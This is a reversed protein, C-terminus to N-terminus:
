FPVSFAYLKGESTTAYVSAALYDYAPDGVAISAGGATRSAEVQGTTLDLQLLQGTNSGVYVAGDAINTLVLPFGAGAVYTKWQQVGNSDVRRVYGDATSFVMDGAFTGGYIVFLGVQIASGSCSTARADVGSQACFAEESGASSGCGDASSGWCSTGDSSSLSYISGQNTPVLLSTRGINAFSPSADAAGVDRSWLLRNGSPTDSSDIAWLTDGTGLKASTFFLQHQTADHVPRQSVQGLQASGTDGSCSGNFVWVCAGTTSNLGFVRNEKGSTNRTPVFVRGMSDSIVPSSYLADGLAQDGSTGSDGDIAASTWRVTGANAGTAWVASVDGSLSALFITADTDGTLTGVPSRNQVGDTLSFPSFARVGDNKVGLVSGSNNAYFVGANPIITPASLAASEVSFVFSPDSLSGSIPTAALTPRGAGSGDDVALGNRAVVLYCYDTGAQLSTHTLSQQSASWSVTTQVGSVSVSTSGLDVTPDHNILVTASGVQDGAAESGTPSTSFTCGGTQVLVMVHSVYEPPQEFSVTNQGASTTIIVQSAPTPPAATTLEAIHTYGDLPSGDGNVLRLCYTTGAPASYDVLSFDWLGSSGSPIDARTITLAANEEFTQPVTTRGARVPDLLSETLNQGDSASPSDYYAIASTASVNAYTEGSGAADCSGSRQAFQLKLSSGSATTLNIADVDVLMRVRFPTGQVPLDAPTDQAQLGLSVGIADAVLEGTDALRKELRGDSGNTGAIYLDGGSVEIAYAATGAAATVIGGSGFGTVLSGDSLSRKEVRMGSDGTGAVYLASGDTTVDYAVGTSSVVLVGSSGFGSDLSGTSASRKEIRFNGSDDEGAIYLYGGTLAVSHAVTGGSVSVVGSSGFGSALSGNSLARKEIRWGSGSYGVAYLYTGDTTLNYAAANALTPSYTVVGSSGFSGDLAGNSLARKEIRWESYLGGGYGVIYLYSGDIAVGQAGLSDLLVDVTVRGSSGFGTVLDGSALDRKEIVWDSYSSGERGVTYLYSGDSATDYAASSSLVELVGLNGFLSDLVGGVQARKEYWFGSSGEGIAHLTDGVLAVARLASSAANSIAVGTGDGFGATGDEDFFFRYASQDLSVPIPVTKRFALLQTRWPRSLLTSTSTTYSGPSSAVRYAVGYNTSSSSLLLDHNYDYQESFSNSWSLYSQEYQDVAAALVVAEDSVTVSGFGVSLSTGSQSVVDELPNSPDIDSFEFLQLGVYTSSSLSVTVTSSEGAGAIKYFVSLGPANNGENLATTWGAPATVTRADWNGVIAVLLNGATPGSSLTAYISSTQGYSAAKQVSAILAQSQREVEFDDAPEAVCAAIGLAWLALLWTARLQLCRRM